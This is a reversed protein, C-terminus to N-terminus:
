AGRAARRPTMSLESSSSPSSMTSALATLATMTENFSLGASRAAAGSQVLAAGFDGVDATTANAAQALADAVQASQQGSLGFQQMANATYSAADALQLNGAKALTLASTM